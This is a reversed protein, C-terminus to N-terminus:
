AHKHPVQITVNRVTITSTFGTTSCGHPLETIKGHLTVRDGSAPATPDVGKGFRVRANTLTFMQSGTPAGHNAKTLTVTLTGNFHGASTGATLASATLTGSARYGKNLATCNTKKGSSTSPHTPHTPHTPHPPKVAWAPVAATLALASVITLTRKV